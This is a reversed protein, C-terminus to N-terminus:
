NVYIATKVAMIAADIHEYSRNRLGNAFADDNEQDLDEHAKKLFDDAAHLRDIREPKEDLSPHDDISKGDDIAADKISKIAEDIEKVANIENKTKEWNGPRHEIMWRAARLDSLARVYFEHDSPKESAKAVSVASILVILALHLNKM